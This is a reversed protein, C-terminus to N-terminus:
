VQLASPSDFVTLFLIDLLSHLGFLDGVNGNMSTINTGAMQSVSQVTDGPLTQVATNFPHTAQSTPGLNIAARATGAPTTATNAQIDCRAKDGLAFMQAIVPVIKACNPFVVSKPGVDGIASYPPSLIVRNIKNPDLGRAFNM